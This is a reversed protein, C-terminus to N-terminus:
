LDIWYRCKEKEGRLYLPHSSPVPVIELFQCGLRECTRRSPLNDPNCTIWIRKLQHARALGLLMRAAREAYHNGRAPPYVGYGIHGAYKELDENEGVRLTIGGAIQVPPAVNGVPHLRMWFHYSPVWSRQADAPQRGKPAARLFDM